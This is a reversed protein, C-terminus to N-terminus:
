EPDPLGIRSLFNSFRQVILERYLPDISCEYNSEKLLNLYSVNCTFYHKFDIVCDALKTDSGFKIFHYRKDENSSINRCKASPMVQMRLDLQILHEGKRFDEFNYLPAVMTSILYKDQNVNENKNERNMRRANADQVLDCSQTLVIVYPFVISSAEIISGEEKIYEIYEVNKIIDGQNINDSKTINTKTIVDSM